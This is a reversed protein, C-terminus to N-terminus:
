PLIQELHELDNVVQWSGGSEEVRRQWEQLRGLYENPDINDSRLKTVNLAVLSFGDLTLPLDRNYGEPIEEKLDSFILIVKRGPQKENLFEVAQLLGGTIDTYAAPRAEDVFRQIAQQFVRKQKNAVSPRDDFTVKAKINKESFSGSNISAVAFTDGPRMKALTYNIVQQAKGLEETYTGSTDILMYVGQNHVMPEGCGTLLLLTAAVILYKM